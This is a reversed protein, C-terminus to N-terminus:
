RAPRLARSWNSRRTAFCQFTQPFTCECVSAASGSGCTSSYGSLQAEVDVVRELLGDHFVKFIVFFGRSANLKSAVQVILSVIAPANVRVSFAARRSPWRRCEMQVRPRDDTRHQFEGEIRLAFEIGNDLQELRLVVRIGIYLHRGGHDPAEQVLGALVALSIKSKRRPTPPLPLDDRSFGTCDNKSMLSMATNPLLVSSTNPRSVKTPFRRMTALSRVLSALMSVPSMRLMTDLSLIRNAAFVLQLEAHRHVRVKDGGAVTERHFPHVDLAIKQPAHKVHVEGNRRGHLVRFEFVPEHLRAAHGIAEQVDGVQLHTECQGVVHIESAAIGSRKMLFRRIKKAPM